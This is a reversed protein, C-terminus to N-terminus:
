PPQIKMKLEKEHEMWLLIEHDRILAIGARGFEGNGGQRWGLEAGTVANFFGVGSRGSIILYRGDASLTVRGSRTLRCVRQGSRADLLLVQHDDWVAVRDGNPAFAVGETFIYDSRVFDKPPAVANGSSADFCRILGDHSVALLSRGDPTFAAAVGGHLRLREKATRCDWLYIAEGASGAVVTQSDPSFSAQYVDTFFDTAERNRALLEAVRRLKKEPSIEWLYVYLDPEGIINGDHASVIRRGDPSFAIHRCWSKSPWGLRALERGNALDYLHLSGDTAAMFKGDPSIALVDYAPILSVAKPNVQTDSPKTNDDGVSPGALGLCMALGVALTTPTSLRFAYM